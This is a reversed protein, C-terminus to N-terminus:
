GNAKEDRFMRQLTSLANFVRSKVTGVPIGLVQAIQDYRLGQYIALVLVERHKPPLSDLAAQVDMDKRLGPVDGETSTPTDAAYREQFLAFRAQRRCHDQWAHRALTYLFTTFKASPKYRLRYKWLRVFTEQALDESVNSAGMRTFFNLLPQQHHEVLARFAEADDRAVAAMLVIDEADREAAAPSPVPADARPAPTDDAPAAAM